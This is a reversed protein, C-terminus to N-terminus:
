TQTYHTSESGSFQMLFARYLEIKIINEASEALIGDLMEYNIGTLAM